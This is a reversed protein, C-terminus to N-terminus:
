RQDASGVSDILNCFLCIRIWVRKIVKPLNRRPNKAEGAAIAILGVITIVAIYVGANTTDDWYSILVAAASLEAPLVIIWNYAYNWGMAFSLGPDVFRSAMTIHGRAMEGLAIMICFVITGMTAYGLLIGAPGGYRLANASGLFLGTGIVGGISIMAIHRNKLKRQLQVHETGPQTFTVEHNPEKGKEVDPEDPSIEAPPPAHGEEPNM